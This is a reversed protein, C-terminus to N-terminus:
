EMSDFAILAYNGEGKGQRMIRLPVRRCQKKYADYSVFHRKVVEGKGPGDGYAHYYDHAPM